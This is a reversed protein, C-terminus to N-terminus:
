LSFSLDVFQVLRDARSLFHQIRVHMVKYILRESQRMVGLLTCSRQGGSDGALTLPTLLEPDVTFLDFTMSCHTKNFYRKAEKQSIIYHSQSYTLICTSQKATYFPHYIHKIGSTYENGKKFFWSAFSARPPWSPDCLLDTKHTKRIFRHKPPHM